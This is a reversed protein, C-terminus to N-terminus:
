LAPVENDNQLQDDRGQELKLKDREATLNEVKIRCAKLEDEIEKSKSKLYWSLLVFFDDYCEM